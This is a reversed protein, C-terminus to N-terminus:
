TSNGSKIANLYSNLFKNPLGRDDVDLDEGPSVPSGGSVLRRASAELLSRSPSSATATVGTDNSKLIRPEAIRSHARILDFQLNPTPADTPKLGLEGKSTDSTEPSGPDAATPLCCQFLFMPTFYFVIINKSHELSSLIGPNHVWIRIQRPEFQTSTDFVKKEQRATTAERM